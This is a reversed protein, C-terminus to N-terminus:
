VVDIRDDLHPAKRGGIEPSPGLKQLAERAQPKTRPQNLVNLQQTSSHQGGKFRFCIERFGYRFFHSFYRCLLDTLIELM